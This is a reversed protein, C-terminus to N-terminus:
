WCYMYSKQEHIAVTALTENFCFMAVQRSFFFCSQFPFNFNFVNNNCFAIFCNQLESICIILLICSWGRRLASWEDLPTTGVTTRRQTHDLFRTFSSAGPGSHAAAGFYFFFICSWLQKCKRWLVDPSLYAFRWCMRRYQIVEIKTCLSCPCLIILLQSM